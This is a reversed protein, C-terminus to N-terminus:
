LPTLSANRVRTPRLAVRVPEVGQLAQKEAILVDRQFQPARHLWAYLTQKSIGAAAAAQARSLGSALGDTIAKLTAQRMKRPPTRRRPRKDIGEAAAQSVLHRFVADKEEWAHLTDRSIGAGEAAVAKTAGNRLRQCVDAKIRTRRREQAARESEEDIADFELRAMEEGLIRCEDDTVTLRRVMRLAWWIEGAWRAAVPGFEPDTPVSRRRQGYAGTGARLQALEQELHFEDRVM